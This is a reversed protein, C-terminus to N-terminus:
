PCCCAVQCCAAKDRHPDPKENVADESRNREKDREAELLAYEARKGRTIKPPKTVCCCHYCVCWLGVGLSISSLAVSIKILYLEKGEQRATSLFTWQLWSFIGGEIIGRFSVFLFALTEPKVLRRERPWGEPFYNDEVSVMTLPTGSWHAWLHFPSCLFALGGGVLFHLVIFGGMLYEYKHYLAGGCSTAVAIFAMDTYIDLATLIMLLVSLLHSCSTKCHEGCCRCDCKSHQHSDRVAKRHFRPGTEEAWVLLVRVALLLLFVQHVEPQLGEDDVCNALQHRMALAPLIIEGTHILGIGMILVLVYFLVTTQVQLVQDSHPLTQGKQELYDNLAHLGKEAGLCLLAIVVFLLWSGCVAGQYGEGRKMRRRVVWWAWLSCVVVGVVVVESWLWAEVLFSFEAVPADIGGFDAVDSFTFVMQTLFILYYMAAAFFIYALLMLINFYRLYRAREEWGDESVPGAHCHLVCGFVTPVLMLVFFLVLWWSLKAQSMQDLGMLLVKGRPDIFPTTRQPGREFTTKQLSQNGDVGLLAAAGASIKVPELLFYLTRDKWKECGDGVDTGLYVRAYKEIKREGSLGTLNPLIKSVLGTLYEHTITDNITGDKKSANYDQPTWGLVKLDTENLSDSSSNTEGRYLQFALNLGPMDWDRRYLDSGADLVAQGLRHWLKDLKFLVRFADWDTVNPNDDAWRRAQLWPALSPFADPLQCPSRTEVSKSKNVDFRGKQVDCLSSPTTKNALFDSIEKCLRAANEAYSTIQEIQTTLNQSANALSTVAGLKCADNRECEMIENECGAQVSRASFIDQSANSINWLMAQLYGDLYMEAAKLSICRHRLHIEALPSIGKKPKHLFKRYVKVEMLRCKLAGAYTRGIWIEGGHFQSKWRRYFTSSTDNIDRRTKNEAWEKSNYNVHVYNKGHDSIQTFAGIDDFDFLAPTASCTSNAEARLVLAPWALLM